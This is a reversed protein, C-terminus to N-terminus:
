REPFVGCCSKDDKGVVAHDEIVCNSNFDFEDQNQEGFILAFIEQSTSVHRALNFALSKYTNALATM